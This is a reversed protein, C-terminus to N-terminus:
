QAARVPRIETIIGRDDFIVDFMDVQPGEGNARVEESPIGLAMAYKHDFEIYRSPSLALLGPYDFVSAGVRLLSRLRKFGEAAKKLRARAGSQKENALTTDGSLAFDEQVQESGPLGHILDQIQKSTAQESDGALCNVASLLLALVVQKM